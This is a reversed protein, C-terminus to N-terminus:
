LDIVIKSVLNKDAINLEIAEGLKEVPFRHSVIKSVPAAGSAIAAIAQPYVHRYRFNTSVSGEKFILGNLDVEQKPTGWLGVLCLNGGRNLLPIAQDLVKQSAACEYVVDVGGCMDQIGKVVDVEADNFVATVGLAKAKELRAPAVDTMYIENIGRAKLALAMCLGICGSGLIAASQGFKIGSQNVSHIAVALPESLCADATDVCDPVKFVLRGPWAIFECFAGPVGPVSMFLM